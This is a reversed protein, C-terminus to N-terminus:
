SFSEPQTRWITYELTVTGGALVGSANTGGWEQRVVRDFSPQTPDNGYVVTVKALRTGAAERPDIVQLLNHNLREDSNGMSYVYERRRGAPFANDTPTSTVLPSRVAALDGEPSYEFLVERGSVDRIRTIRGSADHEYDVGRGLPDIAQSILGDAGRAFTIKNQNRDSISELRGSKPSGDFSHYRYRTGDPEREVFFGQADVFLRAFVGVPSVFVGESVDLLYEDFSGRGNARVFSGGNLSPHLRRDEYEHEWGWGLAGQFNHRSEYRRRFAYPLDRGPIPLELDTEEVFLEGSHAYVNFGLSLSDPREPVEHFGPEQVLVRGSLSGTRGGLPGPQSLVVVGGTRLGRGSPASISGIEDEVVGRSAEVFGGGAASHVFLPVSRGAPDRVSPVSLSAPPDFRVGDPFIALPVDAHLDDPLVAPLAALGTAALTITGSRSGDPFTVSGPAIRLRLGPLGPLTMLAGRTESLLESRAKVGTPDSAPSLHIADIRNSRGSVAFVRAEHGEFGAAVPTVLLDGAPAGAIRFGGFVDTLGLLLGSAMRLQVDVGAVPQGRSDLVSGSLETDAAPGPALGRAEIVIPLASAHSAEIRSSSDLQPPLTLVTGAVGSPGTAVTVQAGGSINADGEIVRFTIPEGAIPTGFRDLLRVEIPRPLDEGAIGLFSRGRHAALLRSSSASSRLVFAVPSNVQTLGSVEVVSAGAEGGATFSVTARGDAATLLSRTRVGTDLRGDGQVVRFTLVVSKEPANAADRAEAVLQVPVVQGAVLAQGDGSVITLTPGASGGRVVKYARSTINGRSDQAQLQVASTGLAVVIDVTFTGNAITAPVGGITLTISGELERPMGPDSIRGVFHAVGSETRYGVASLLQSEPPYTLEVVPGEADVYLPEVAQARRPVAGPLVTTAILAQPGPGLTLNASWNGATVLAAVNNVVVPAGPPEVTGRVTVNTAAGSAAIVGLPETIVVRPAISDITVPLTAQGRNGVPDFAEAVITHPGPDLRMDVHFVGGNVEAQTGNVFVDATPDNITGEVSFLGSLLLAGASPATIAIAPATADGPTSVPAAVSPLPKSDPGYADSSGAEARRVTVSAQTSGAASTARVTITNPGIVLPTASTFFGGSSATAAGSVTVTAQPDTVYGSVQVSDSTVVSGDAPSTIRVLPAGDAGELVRVVAERFVGRYRVRITSRGVGRATVLGEATVDAIAPDDAAYTTSPSTRVDERLGSSDVAVVSLVIANSIRHFLVEPPQVLLQSPPDRGNACSLLDATPDVDELDFPPSPASGGLFLYSLARIADTIELAGNDDADCADLCIPQRGGLFLFSLLTIPDSIDFRGSDDCDGRHMVGQAQASPAICAGVLLLCALRLM